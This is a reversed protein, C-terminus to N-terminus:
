RALRGSALRFNQGKSRFLNTVAAHDTFVTVPYGHILGCYHKLAWVVALTQQDTVSYNCETSNFTRSAYAIVRNKGRGDQQMLVTAIGTGSTVTYLVFPASYYPFALVLVNTFARKLEQFSMEQGDHWQFHPEKRLFKTLLSALTM